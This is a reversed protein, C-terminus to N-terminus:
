IGLDAEIDYQFHRSIIEEVAKFEDEETECAHSLVDINEVIIRAIAEKDQWMGEVLGEIIADQRDQAEALRDFEADAKRMHADEARQMQDQTITM